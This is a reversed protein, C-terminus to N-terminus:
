RARRAALKRQAHICTAHWWVEAGFDAGLLLHVRNYLDAIAWVGKEGTNEWIRDAVWVPDALEDM